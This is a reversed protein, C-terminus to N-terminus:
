SIQKRYQLFGSREAVKDYLLIGPKNSKSRIIKPSDIKADVKRVAVARSARRSYTVPTRWAPSPRGNRVLRDVDHRSVGIDALMRDSFIQLSRIDNQLRWWAALWEVLKVCSRALDRVLSAISRAASRLFARMLINRHIHVQREFEYSPLRPMPDNFDYMTM